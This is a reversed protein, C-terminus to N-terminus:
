RNGGRPAPAPAGAGGTLNSVTPAATNLLGPLTQQALNTPVLNPVLAFFWPGSSIAEGLSGVYTRLGDVAATISADNKKLVGLVTELQDLAPGIQAQNDHAVGTFQKIVADVNILLSRITDRRAYLEQLLLNGDSILTTINGSREALLQTVGQANSLLTQLQSDRSAITESLRGLGDVTSRLAPPTNTFTDSVTDLAKQLQGIDIQQTTRTLHELIEQVDYPSQTRDLPIPTQADLAGAGSPLVALYKSGLATATKIAAGTTSGLSASDFVTFYAQVKNGRLELDDVKGVVVGGVRVEDGTKLGGAEAFYASYSTSLLRRYISGSNLAVLLVVVLLVLAIVGIRLLNMEEFRKNLIPM